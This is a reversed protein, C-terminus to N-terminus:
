ERLGAKILGGTYRRFGEGPRLHALSASIRYDPELQLLKGVVEEAESQRGLQALSAALM